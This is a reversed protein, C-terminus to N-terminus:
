RAETYTMFELLNGDPDRTYVSTGMLQGARAGGRQDVPGFEVAAGAARIMEEAEAVEARVQLEAIQEMLGSASTDLAEIREEARTKTRNSAADGAPTPPEDHAAGNTPTSDNM